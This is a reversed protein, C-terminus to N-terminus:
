QLDVFFLQWPSNKGVYELCGFGMSNKEGIGAEWAFRILEPSGELQVPALYGFISHDRYQILKTGKKESLYRHDFYFFLREDEPSSGYCARYRRLLNQRIKESFLAPDEHYRLYRAPGEGTGTTVVVPSLCVFKAGGALPPAQQTLVKKVPLHVDGLSLFPENLLGQLLPFLFRTLPSSVVLWAEGVIWFGQSAGKKSRARLQSFTFLKYGREGYGQQHLFAAYEPDALSLKRYIAATLYYQYDYPIFVGDPPTQLVVKIRM